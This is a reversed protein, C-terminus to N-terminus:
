LLAPECVPGRPWGFCRLNMDFSLKVEGLPEWPLSRPERLLTTLWPLAFEPVFCLLLMAAKELLGSERFGFM